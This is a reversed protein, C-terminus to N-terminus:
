KKTKSFRWKKKSNRAPQNMAILKQLRIATNIQTQRKNHYDSWLGAILTALEDKQSTKLKKFKSEKEIQIDPM